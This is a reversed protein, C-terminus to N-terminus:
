EFARSGTLHLVLDDERLIELDYQMGAVASFELSPCTELSIGLEGHSGPQALVLLQGVPTVFELWRDRLPTVGNCPL